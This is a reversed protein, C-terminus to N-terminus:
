AILLKLLLSLYMTIPAMEMFHSCKRREGFDACVSTVASLSSGQKRLSYLEELWRLASRDWDGTALYRFRPRHRRLIVKWDNAM